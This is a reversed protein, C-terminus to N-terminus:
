CQAPLPSRPRMIPIEPPLLDAVAQMLNEGLRRALVAMVATAALEADCVSGSRLEYRIQRLFQRRGLAAPPEDPRYGHFYLSRLTVPLRSGVHLAVAVPLTDRFATLVGSLARFAVPHSVGGMEAAVDDLWADM